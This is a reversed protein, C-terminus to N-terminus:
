ISRVGPPTLFPKRGMGYIVEYTAPIRGHVTFERRYIEMMDLMMRREAFGRTPPSTTGAGVGRIARLLAPVDSYLETEFESWVRCALFGNRVLTSEVASAVHFTLTRKEDGLGALSHARRYSSRLEHLTKEGFLAFRFAGGPILVRWAERCAVDMSELWQFTSTSVILDFSGGAFPLQEADATVFQGRGQLTDRALRSMGFAMDMGTLLAGPYLCALNELLLGTGAGIDLVRKPHLGEKRLLDVFREVVRKQVCAHRDYEGAHRDFAHRVRRRDIPVM